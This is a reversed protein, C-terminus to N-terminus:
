TNQGCGGPREAQCTAEHMQQLIQQLAQQQSSSLSAFVPAHYDNLARMAKDILKEGKATLLTVHERRNTPSHKSSLLGAESLLKIQRSVSAETQGLKAAIRKQQIGQGWKLAMLIKFQSFGIDLREQLLVDSQRDLATALHHLLYGTNNHLPHSM